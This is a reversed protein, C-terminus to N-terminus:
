RTGYRSSRKNLETLIVKPTIKRSFDPESMATKIQVIPRTACGYRVCDSAHTAEGDEAYAERKNPDTPVAPLYERTYRCSRCFRILPFGDKGELRARVEASGFVRDTNARTLPVGNELFTDSMRYKDGNKSAGRDQFPLSDSLTLGSTEEPTRSVIGSAISENRMQLGKSQDNPDCGYWERYVILCGRPFWMSKGNAAFEEGDSVAWWLVCFPDSGGWDFTRYKFWYAPPTFDECTHTLDDYQRFFDGVPADWDENILADATAQDGIGSVRRRTAEADESPNDEVKAPIYQRMFGGDEDPARGIEYRARANVFYRRFYGASPGIPNSTHIIRPFFNELQEDTLTPYVHRLLGPLKKKMDLPMTVWARLWKIRLAPIQTAESFTRVHKGIGQHKMMVKDSSCHELSILAGNWFKIETQNIRVLGDREWPGLLDPFSFPGDMNEAVVDDFYLRFIDAQLGPVSSCWVVYAVRVLHSKGGRTAGGYLIENAASEFALRQKPHLPPIWLESKQPNLAM